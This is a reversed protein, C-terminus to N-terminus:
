LLDPAILERSRSSLCTCVYGWNLYASIFFSSGIILSHAVNEFGGQVENYFPDAVCHTIGLMQSRSTKLSYVFQSTVHSVERALRQIREVTEHAIDLHNNLAWLVTSYSVEAKKAIHKVDVPM